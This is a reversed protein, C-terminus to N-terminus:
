AAHSAKRESNQPKPTWEQATKLEVLRLNRVTKVKQGASNNAEMAQAWLQRFQVLESPSYDPRATLNPYRDIRSARIKPMGKIVKLAIEKSPTVLRLTTKPTRRGLPFYKLQEIPINLETGIDAVADSPNLDAPINKIIVSKERAECEKEEALALRQLQVQEAQALTIKGKSIGTAAAAAYSKPLSDVVTTMKETVTDGLSQVAATLTELKEQVDILSTFKADIIGYLSRIHAYARRLEDKLEHAKDPMPSLFDYPELDFIRAKSPPDTSSESM